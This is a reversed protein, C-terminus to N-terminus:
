GGRYQSAARIPLYFQMGSDGEDSDWWDYHFGSEMDADSACVIRAGFFAILLIFAIQTILRNNCRSLYRSMIYSLGKM